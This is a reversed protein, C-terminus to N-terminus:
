LLMTMYWQRSDKKQCLIESFLLAAAAASVVEMHKQTTLVFGQATMM